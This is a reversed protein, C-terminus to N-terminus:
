IQSGTEKWTTDICQLARQGLKFCVPWPDKHFDPLHLKLCRMIDPYKDIVVDTFLRKEELITRLGEMKLRDMLKPLPGQIPSALVIAQELVPPIPTTLPPKRIRSPDNLKKSRLEARQAMLEDDDSTTSQIEQQEDNSGSPTLYTDYIGKSDSNNEPSTPAKSKKRGKKGISSPKAARGKSVAAGENIKIGKGKNQPPMNRGPVKPRAMDHLDCGNPSMLQIREVVRCDTSHKDVEDLKVPGETLTLVWVATKTQTVSITPSGGIPSTYDM